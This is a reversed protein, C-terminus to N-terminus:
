YIKKRVHVRTRCSMPPESCISRSTRPLFKATFLRLVGCLEYRIICLQNSTRIRRVLGREQTTSRDRLVFIFLSIPGISDPRTTQEVWVCNRLQGGMISRIAHRNEVCGGVCFLEAGDHMVYNSNSSGFYPNSRVIIGIRLWSILTCWWQMEMLM